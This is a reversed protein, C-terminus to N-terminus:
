NSTRSSHLMVARGTRPAVIGPGLLAASALAGVAVVLAFMKLINNDTEVSLQDTIQCPQGSILDLEALSTESM